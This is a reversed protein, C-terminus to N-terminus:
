HLPCLLERGILDGLRGCFIGRHAEGLRDGKRRALVLEPDFLRHQGPPDRVLGALRQWTGRDYHGVQLAALKDAGAGVPVAFVRGGAEAVSVGQNKGGHRATL